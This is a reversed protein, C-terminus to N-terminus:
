LIYSPKHYYNFNSLKTGSILLLLDSERVYFSKVLKEKLWDNLKFNHMSLEIPSNLFMSSSKCLLYTTQDWATLM